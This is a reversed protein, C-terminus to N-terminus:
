KAHSEFKDDSFLSNFGKKTLLVARVPSADAGEIPLPLAILHYLGAPITELILGELVAMDHAAIRAHAELQKSSEPDVSPTDIGVLRVGQEAFFDILRPAFSCFDSNWQNPNRFSATSILVRPAQIVTQNLHELDVREGKPVQAHIVQAPGMYIRLDRAAIDPGGKKYHNPADAHAGLHLTTQISSLLLNSGQDFNLSVKRQFSVDGPFVGIKESIRPSIDYLLPDSSVKM